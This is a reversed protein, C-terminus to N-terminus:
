YEVFSQNLELGRSLRGAGFRGGIDLSNKMTDLLVLIEVRTDNL